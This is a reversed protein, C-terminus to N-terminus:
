FLYGLILFRVPVESLYCFLSIYVNVYIGILFTLVTWCFYLVTSQCVFSIM